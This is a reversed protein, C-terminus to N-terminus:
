LTKLLTKIQEQTQTVYFGGFLSAHNILHYLNYVKFRLHSQPRLPTISRYGEYFAPSLGGFLFTMALDVEFDGYYVAPDYLTGSGKQTIALNGSWLDGHVLCPLPHHSELFQHIKKLVQDQNKFSIGQNRAEKFQPKLRENIFFDSWREHWQNSQPNGGIYNTHTFGFFARSHPHLEISKQHFYALNQGFTYWQDKTGQQLEIFDSVLFAVSETVHYLWPTPICLPSSDSKTSLLHTVAKLAYLGQEESKLLAQQKLPLAKCFYRTGNQCQLRYHSSSQTHISQIPSPLVSACSNQLITLLDM